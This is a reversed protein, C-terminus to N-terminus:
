INIIFKPDGEGFITSFIGSTTINDKSWNHALPVSPTRLIRYFQKNGSQRIVMKSYITIKVLM